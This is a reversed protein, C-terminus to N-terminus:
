KMEELMKCLLTVDVLPDDEVAGTPDWAVFADVIAEKLLAAGDALSERVFVSGVERAATWAAETARAEADVASAVAVSKVSELSSTGHADVPAAPLSAPGHHWAVRSISEGPRARRVDAPAATTAPAAVADAADDVGRATPSTSHM